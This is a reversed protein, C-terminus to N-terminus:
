ENMIKRLNLLNNKPDGKPKWSSTSKKVNSVETQRYNSFKSPQMEHNVLKRRPVHRLSHEWNGTTKIDLMISIMQNLTLSKGAGSGWQLYRDLPLKAMKLGERKAKALSLPENNIKDVIAGIIYVANHDYEKLEERCHPTLYVLENKPFMDLYSAEHINMPFDADYMTPIHKHLYKILDRDLHCNSFHIDFPDNHIRNEAFCFMLQKACNINERKTMNEDYGCDIVIKQGFQMAQMLKNNYMHNITSDFFRLFINNHGLDYRMAGDVNPEFDQSEREVRKIEKKQARGEKKKEVKFLFQLYKKRSSRTELKLLESWHDSTMFEPSPVTKGDQRMVDAELIIVKLKHELAEDGGSIKSVDVNGNTCFTRLKQQNPADLVLKKCKSLFRWM